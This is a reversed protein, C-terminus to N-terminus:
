YTQMPSRLQSLRKTFPKCRNPHVSSISTSPVRQCNGDCTSQRLWLERRELAKEALPLLEEFDFPKEVFYFAGAKTAEVATQVSGYGTVVIVETTPRADKMHRMVELGDMDPLQLDCIALHHGGQDFLEIAAAGTAATDVSYGEEIFNQRLSDAMMPEDDVVLIRVDKNEVRKEERSIAASQPSM